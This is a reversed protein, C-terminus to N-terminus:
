LTSIIRIIEEKTTGLKVQLRGFMEDQRGDVYLLDSDTLIIFKQKLKSKTETWNKKEDMINSNFITNGDRCEKWIGTL